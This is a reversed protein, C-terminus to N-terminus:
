LDFEKINNSVPEDDAEEKDDLKLQTELVNVLIDGIKNKFNLDKEIVNKGLPTEVIDFVFNLYVNNPDSEDLKVQGYKYITGKYEGALIEINMRANEQEPVVYRYDIGMVNDM